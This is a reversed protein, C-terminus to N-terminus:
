IEPTKYESPSRFVSRFVSCDFLLSKSTRKHFPQETVLNHESCPVGPHVTKLWKFVLRYVLVSSMFSFDTICTDTIQILITNSLALCSSETNRCRRKTEREKREERKTREKKRRGKREKKEKREKKTTTRAKVGLGTVNGSANKKRPNVTM